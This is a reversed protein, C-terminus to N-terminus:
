ETSYRIPRICGTQELFLPVARNFDEDAALSRELAKWREAVDRLVPLSLGLKGAVEIALLADRAMLRYAFASDYGDNLIWQPFNVEVVASRGSASSIAQTMDQPDLGYELGISFAEATVLLHSAVMINNMLKTVNGSGPGGMHRWKGGTIADLVQTATAVDEPYGGVFASLIGSRALVMGGSVPADVFIRGQIRMWEALACSTAPTSTTTDIVMLCNSAEVLQRTSVDVESAGPLSLLATRVEGAETISAFVEIRGDVRKRAAPSPDCGIVPWGRDCLNLAMAYGMQGLGVVAIKENGASAEIPYDDM